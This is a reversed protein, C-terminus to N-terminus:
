KSSARPLSRDSRLGKGDGEDPGGVHAEVAEEAEAEFVGGVEFVGVELV